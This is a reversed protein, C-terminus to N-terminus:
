GAPLNVDTFDLDEKGTAALSELKPLADEWNRVLAITSSADYDGDALASGVDVVVEGVKLGARPETTGNATYNILRFSMETMGILVDDIAAM